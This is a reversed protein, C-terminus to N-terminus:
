WEDFDKNDKILRVREVFSNNIISRNKEFRNFRIGVVDAFTHPFDELIYKRNKKNELASINNRYHDKYKESFWFLLPIEYMAKTPTYENHGMYDISDFVEQGHDSFYVVSSLTNKEKVMSIIENIIFDNYRVANDYYNAYKVMRSENSIIHPPFDKFYNYNDPYRKNYTGHVGMLHLFIVKRKDPKNLTKKLQPLLKGDYIKAYFNETEMWYKSQAANGIITPITETLGLPEQNSIWYTKFDAANAMQVVSVNNVPKPTTFSALTLIKELSPMTHTHPSIVKNFILLEKKIAELKPNTKRPYGYLSMHNRTLSEGIIVIHTQPQSNIKQIQIDSNSISKSLTNNLGNTYNVYGKYADHIRLFIDQNYFRKKIQFVSFGAIVLLSLKVKLSPTFKFKIHTSNFAHLKFFIIIPISHTGLLLLLGTTFYANLYEGIENRNTEFVVFLASGNINIGYLHVFALKIFSVTSTLGIFFILAVKLLKIKSFQFAISFCIVNLLFFAIIEKLLERYDEFYFVSIISFLVFPLLLVLYNYYEKIKLLM